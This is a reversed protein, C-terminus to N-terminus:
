KKQHEVGPEQPQRFPNHFIQGTTKPKQELVKPTRVTITTDSIAIIQTRNILFEAHQLSKLLSPAVHLQRITFDHLDVSYRTVKGLKRKETDIVKLGVPTFQHNIINRISILDDPSVFDDSSNIIMGIDAVERIDPTMLLAPEFDLTTGSIYFAIIKLNAPDIVTAETRALEAGTQLSLIPTNLLREGFTLM